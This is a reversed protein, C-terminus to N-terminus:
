RQGAAQEAQRAVEALQAAAEQYELSDPEYRRQEAELMQRADDLRGEALSIMALDHFFVPAAREVFLCDGGGAAAIERYHAQCAAYDGRLFALHGALFAEFHRVAREETQRIYTERNKAVAEALQEYRAAEDEGSATALLFELAKLNPVGPRTLAYGFLSADDKWYPLYSWGLFWYFFLFALGAAATLRPSFGRRLASEALLAAAGWVAASVFYNYRDCFTYDTYRLLGLVPAATGAAILLVAAIARWQWGLRRAALVFAAALAAGGLLYPLAERWAGTGTPYVPNFEWPLLATLPYRFLNGLPIAWARELVGPNTEATVHAAWLVAALWLALPGALRALRRRFGSRGGYRCWCWVIMVGGLPLAAPKAGMALAALVGALWPTRNRAMARAFAYLSAFVLLGCLVDKRESIWLVSEIKQPQVAWLLAAGFAVACRAGFRRLTLALLWASAIHLLLNHLHFMVPDLGFLMRDAMLSYLPLPTYLDYFPHLAYWLLNEPTPAIRPNDIVFLGDDWLLFDFGLGPAYYLATALALVAAGIVVEARKRREAM